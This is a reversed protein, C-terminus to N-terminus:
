QAAGDLRVYTRYYRIRTRGTEALIWRGKNLIDLGVGESMEAIRGAQGAPCWGTTAFEVEVSPRDIM